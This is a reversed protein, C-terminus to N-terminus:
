QPFGTLLADLTEAAKDRDRLDGTGRLLRNFWLVQGTRLDVLSAYGQQIAGPQVQVRFLAGVIMAAVREGSAYSDRVYTFLAYDAGSRERLVNADPGLSWDLKGEKTALKLLGYHHASIALGVAGHLRNLEAVQESGDDEMDVIQSGIRAKRERYLDKLHKLAATTWDARPEAVGGAGIEFLEVDMPMLAIKSGPPLKGFGEARNNQASATAALLLLCALALAHLIRFTM